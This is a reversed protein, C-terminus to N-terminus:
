DLAPSVRARPSLASPAFTERDVRRASEVEAAADAALGVGVVFTVPRVVRVSVAGNSRVRRRKASRM